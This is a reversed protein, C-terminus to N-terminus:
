SEGGSERLRQLDEPELGVSEFSGAFIWGVVLLPLLGLGLTMLGLVAAAEGVSPQSLDAVSTLWGIGVWSGSLLLWVSLLPAVSPGRGRTGVVAFLVPLACTASLAGVVIWVSGGYMLVALILPSLLTLLILATTTKM